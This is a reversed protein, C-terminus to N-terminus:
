GHTAILQPSSGFRFPQNPAVSLDSQLGKSQLFSKTAALIDDNHKDQLFFFVSRSQAARAASAANHLGYESIVDVFAHRLNKLITDTGVLLVLWDVSSHVGGGDASRSFGHLETVFTTDNQQLDAPTCNDSPVM